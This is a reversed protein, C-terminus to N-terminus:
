WSGANNGMDLRLSFGEIHAGNKALGKIADIIESDKCNLAPCSTELTHSIANQIAADMYKEMHSGKITAGLWIGVGFILVAVAAIIIEYGSCAGGGNM